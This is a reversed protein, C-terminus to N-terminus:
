VYFGGEKLERVDDAFGFGLHKNGVDWDGTFEPLEGFRLKVNMTKEGLPLAGLSNGKSLQDLQSNRATTILASFTTSHAVGNRDLFYFGLSVILGTFLLAIGYSLVLNGCNYQYVFLTNLYTM